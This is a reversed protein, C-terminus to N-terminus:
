ASYLEFARRAERWAAEDPETIADLDGPTAAPDDVWERL